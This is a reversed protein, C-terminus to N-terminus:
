KSPGGPAPAHVGLERGGAVLYLSYLLAFGPRKKGAEVNCLWVQSVHLKDAMARQSLGLRGRVARFLEPAAGRCARWVRRFDRHRRVLEQLLAERAGAGDNESGSESM